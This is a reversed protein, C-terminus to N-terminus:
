GSSVVALNDDDFILDVPGDPRCAHLVVIPKTGDDLDLVPFDRVPSVIHVRERGPVSQHLAGALGGIRVLVVLFFCAMKNSKNLKVQVSKPTRRAARIELPSVCVGLPLRGNLAQEFVRVEVHGGLRADVFDGQFQM